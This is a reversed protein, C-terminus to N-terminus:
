DNVLAEGSKVKEESQQYQEKIYNELATEEIRWLGRGGIQIAKIEGNNILNRVAGHSVKLMDAVDAITYFSREM